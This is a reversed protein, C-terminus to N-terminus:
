LEGKQKKLWYLRLIQDNNPAKIGRSALDAMVKSKDSDPIKDATVSLLKQSKESSFLGFLYKDRFTVDTVAIRDIRKTMEDQTFKVGEQKQQALLVDSLYHKISGVQQNYAELDAKSGNTPKPVISLLRNNVVTNFVQNNLMGAKTDTAGTLEKTRIAEVKEQDARSFNTVQFHQFEAPTMAALKDPNEMAFNFAGMNTRNEGDRLVRSYKIADDMKEPALQLLRSKLNFDVNNWDGGKANVDRLVDGFAQDAAEKRSKDLMAYQHEMAERAAQVHLPDPNSGLLGIGYNFFEQQTPFPRAGGGAGLKEMNTKVYNQTEPPMYAMWNQPSGAADAKKIADDLTGSGANYAAWAMAPTGYKQLMAQLLDRGVRNYEAPSDDKAPAIGFGPNKATAPMVQMSYLAGKSSTVPTGDPKFDRNGSETEATIGQMKDMNTPAIRDSFYQTARNTVAQGIQSANVQRSAGLVSLLDDATLQDKFDNIYKLAYTSNNEKLAANIVHSHITSATAKMKAAIEVGSEHNAQGANIVARQANKIATDVKVPDSYNLTADDVANKIEGDALSLQNHKWENLTHAQVEGNWSAAFENARMAFARRQADNGLKTSLDSIVEKLKGSYEDPLSMGSARDAASLGGDQQNLWGTATNFKLDNAKDRLISYQQAVQSYNIQEQMDTAIRMAAEGAGSMAAGLQQTQQGPIAALSPNDVSPDARFGTLPRTDAQVPNLDPVRPM